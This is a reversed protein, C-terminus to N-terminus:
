IEIVLGEACAGKRGWVRGNILTQRWERHYFGFAVWVNGNGQWGGNKAYKSYKTTLDNKGNAKVLFM